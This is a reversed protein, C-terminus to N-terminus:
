AYETALPFFSHHTRPSVQCTFDIGTITRSISYKLPQAGPPSGPSCASKGSNRTAILLHSRFCSPLSDWSSSGFSHCGVPVQPAISKSLSPSSFSRSQVKKRARRAACFLKIATRRPPLPSRVSLFRAQRYVLARGSTGQGNTYLPTKYRT